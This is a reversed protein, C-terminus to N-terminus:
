AERDALCNPCLSGYRGDGMYNEVAALCEGCFRNGCVSCEYSGTHEIRCQCDENGCKIENSM